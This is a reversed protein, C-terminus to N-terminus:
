GPKLQMERIAIDFSSQTKFLLSMVKSVFTWITLAM